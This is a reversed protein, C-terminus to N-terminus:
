WIRASLASVCTTCVAIPQGDVILEDSMSMCALIIVSLISRVSKWSGVLTVLNTCRKAAIHSAVWAWASVEVLGASTRIAPAAVDILM